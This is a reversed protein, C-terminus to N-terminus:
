SLGSAKLFEAAVDSPKRRSVDVQANLRRMEENTFKGSLEALAPQLKPERELESMRVILCAQQPAFVHRDDTLVKWSASELAGDTLSAFVMSVQGEELARFMTNREMARIPSTMPLHYQTLGPIGDPRQQFEFSIGIKWGASVQAADSLTTLKGARSDDARIVGVVSPQVGLPDLLDAQAIRRLEGRAREFVVGADLAPQEHLIESIITGTYEPYISIEGNQFSAYTILTGGAGFQRLTKRGVRREIHQAVIEALLIQETSNPAGIGLPGPGRHCSVAAILPLTVLFERRHLMRSMAYRVSLPSRKERPLSISIGARRREPIRFAESRTKVRSSM